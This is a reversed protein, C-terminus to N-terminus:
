DQKKKDSDSCYRRECEGLPDLGTYKDVEEMYKTIAREM